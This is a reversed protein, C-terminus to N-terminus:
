LNERIVCAFRASFTLKEEGGYQVIVTAGSAQVKYEQALGHLFLNGNTDYCEWQIFPVPIAPAPVSEADLLQHAATALQDCAQATARDGAHAPIAFLAVLLAIAPVLKARSPSPGDARHPWHTNVFRVGEPVEVIEVVLTGFNEHSGSNTTLAARLAEARHLGNASAGFEASLPEGAMIDYGVAVQYTTERNARETQVIWVGKRM